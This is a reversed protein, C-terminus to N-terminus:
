IHLPWSNTHHYENNLKDRWPLMSKWSLGTVVYHGAPAQTKWVVFYDDRQIWPKRKIKSLMDSVCDTLCLRATLKRVKETRNIIFQTHSVSM